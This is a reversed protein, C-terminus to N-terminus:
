GRGNSRLRRSCAVTLYPILAKLGADYRIAGHGVATSFLAASLAALGAWSLLMILRM